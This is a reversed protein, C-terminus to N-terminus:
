EGLAPFFDHRATALCSPSSTAAPFLLSYNHRRRCEWFVHNGDEGSCAFERVVANRLGVRGTSTRALVPVPCCSRLVVTFSQTTYMHFVSFPHRKIPGLRSSQSGSNIGDFPVM